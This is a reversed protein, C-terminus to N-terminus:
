PSNQSTAGWAPAHISVEFRPWFASFGTVDCGVRTRPNFRKAGSAGAGARFTAGWAPAHISVAQGHELRVHVGTAGWAPAHISVDVHLAVLGRVPGDCGVRTRPNFCLSILRTPTTVSTAGWAPAHISVSLERLAQAQEFLDCGVRTRPNFCSRARPCSIRNMDCGVRTRPNFSATWVRRHVAPRDCGVRTRPNFSQLIASQQLSPGTAGWAPAHISVGASLAKRATDITAGWAPAHISVELEWDLAAAILRDCGVRTRPNFGIFVLGGFVLLVDCGVRTRPNFCWRSAGCAPWCSTAGWAPAHISVDSAARITHIRGDTAGRVPAHNFHPPELATALGCTM